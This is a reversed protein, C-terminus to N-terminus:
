GFRDQGDFNGDSITWGTLGSSTKVKVWWTAKPLTGPDSFNELQALQGNYWGLWYGEGLYHILYFVAGKPILVKQPNHPDPVNEKAHVPIPISHVEGTIGAVQEGAHVVGVEEKSGPQKVPHIEKKAVWTRYTCGEFPCAGKDIYPTPPKSAASVAVAVIVFFSM